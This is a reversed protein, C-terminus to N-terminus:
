ARFYNKVAFAFQDLFIKKFYNFNNQEYFIIVAKKYEVENVSRYSIPCIDYALLVANGVLRSTRKNGDDFPQIYSICLMLIFTKIFPNKIGNVLRCTNEMAERIQFQNDLPSFMTGTIGVPSKRLGRGINLGSTLFTHVDEIKPISINKFSSANTLIYDLAKKHNLIMIAEEKRHGSAEKHDKILSETELLSYTNGEIQSSKWSLEVVLREMEKRFITKSLHKKNQKYEENLEELLQLEDKTFINNEQKLHEFISFNFTDKGKRQDAPVKFYKEVDIPRKISFDLLLHYKVARGKGEKSLILNDVLKKLDRKLTVLSARIKIKELEKQIQSVSFFNGQEFINLILEQRKNLNKDNPIMDNIHPLRIM